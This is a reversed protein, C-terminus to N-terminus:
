LTFLSDLTRRLPVTDTNKSVGTYLNFFTIVLGGAFRRYIANRQHAPSPGVNFALQTAKHNELPDPGSNKLFGIAKLNEPLPTPAGLGGGGRSVPM